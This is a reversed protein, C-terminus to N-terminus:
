NIQVISGEITTAGSSKFDAGSSGECAVSSSATININTGDVNVDGGATINIDGDSNLTIGSSDMLVSNGNEDSLTISGGDDSLEVMNENPTIITIIKTDDDFLIKLESKTIFGKENNEESAVIPAPKASSHLMGLVVADRPDDNIFGVIVEDDVEPRFFAGRNIM